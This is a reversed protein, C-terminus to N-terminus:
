QIETDAAGSQGQFYYTVNSIVQMNMISAYNMDTERADAVAAQSGQVSEAPNDQGSDISSCGCVFLIVSTLIAIVSLSKKWM